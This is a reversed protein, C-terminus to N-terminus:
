SHVVINLQDSLTAEESDSLPAFLNFALIIDNAGCVVPLKITNPAHSQLEFDLVAVHEFKCPKEKSFCLQKMCHPNLKSKCGGDVRCPDSFLLIHEFLALWFTTKPCSVQGFWPTCCDTVARDSGKLLSMSM